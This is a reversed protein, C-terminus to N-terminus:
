HAYDGFIVLSRRRTGDGSLVGIDMHLAVGKALGLSIAFVCQFWTSGPIAPRNPWSATNHYVVLVPMGSSGCWQYAELLPPGFMKHWRELTCRPERPSSPMEGSACLPQFFTDFNKLVCTSCFSRSTIEQFVASAFFSCSTPRHSTIMKYKGSLAMCAPNQGRPLM